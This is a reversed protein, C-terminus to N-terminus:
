ETPKTDDVLTSQPKDAVVQAHAGESAQLNAGSTPDEQVAPTEPLAAAQATVDKKAQEAEDPDDPFIVNEDQTDTNPDVVDAAHRLAARRAEEFIPAAARIDVYGDTSTDIHHTQALPNRLLGEARLRDMETAADDTNEPKAEDKPAEETAEPQDTM